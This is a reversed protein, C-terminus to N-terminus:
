RAFQVGLLDRYISSLRETVKEPRHHKILYDYQKKWLEKYSGSIAEVIRDTTNIDKLPFDEYEEYKSSAYTITPRGSAIAELSTLGYTGAKFQDFVVDANWYYENLNQHSVQPLLKTELGLSKALTLTKKLDKGHEVIYVEVDKKLQALAQVAVNTGKVDWDAGSAILAKLKGEHIMLPKPYFLNMDVPNPLYEVDRRYERAIEVLNPTSVLIKDCKKLNRRVMRGLAFRNITTTLDSGHAHGVLPRKRLVSTLYCDQLLYHVHYVDAEASWIKYAIGFTKSWLGRTRKIHTAEIDEPLYRIITEGVYACDNVIALKM